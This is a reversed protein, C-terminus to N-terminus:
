VEYCNVGILWRNTKGERQAYFAQWNKRDFRHIEIHFDGLVQRYWREEVGYTQMKVEM